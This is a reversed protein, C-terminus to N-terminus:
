LECLWVEQVGVFWANSATLFGDGAEELSQPSSTDCQPPESSPGDEDYTCVSPFSNDSYFM